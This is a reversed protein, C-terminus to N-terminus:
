LANSIYCLFFVLHEPRHGHVSHRLDPSGQSNVADYVLPRSGDTMTSSDAMDVFGLALSEKGFWADVGSVEELSEFGGV